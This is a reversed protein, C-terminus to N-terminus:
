VSLSPPPVVKTDAVQKAVIRIEKQEEPDAEARSSM